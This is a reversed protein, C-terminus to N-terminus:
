NEVVVRVEETSNAAEASTPERAVYPKASKRAHPEFRIPGNEIQAGRPGFIPDLTGNEWLRMGYVVLFCSLSVCFLATPERFIDILGAPREYPSRHLSLRKTRGAFPM